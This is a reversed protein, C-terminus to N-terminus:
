MGSSFVCMDVFMLMFIMKKRFVFVSLVHKQRILHSINRVGGHFDIQAESSLVYM